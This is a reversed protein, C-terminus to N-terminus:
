TTVYAYALLKDSRAVIMKCYEIFELLPRDSKIVNCHLCVIWSNEKTITDDNNIRDLSPSNHKPRGGKTNVSWDLKCGCIPCEDTVNAKEFLEQWTIIVNDHRTKHVAVSNKAWMKRPHKFRERIYSDHALKKRHPTKLEESECERCHYRYKRIHTKKFSASAERFCSSDKM